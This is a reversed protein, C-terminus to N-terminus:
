NSLICDQYSCPIDSGHGLDWQMDMNPSTQPAPPTLRQGAAARPPCLHGVPGMVAGQTCRQQGWAGQVAWPMLLAVGCGGRDGGPCVAPPKTM